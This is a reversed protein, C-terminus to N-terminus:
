GTSAEPSFLSPTGGGIFITHVRGAWHAAAGSRPRCRLADLYRREPAARRHAEHSNFDCYPCKRVCWPLHVYLSLPPLAALRLAGARMYASARRRRAARAASSRGAAIPHRGCAGLTGADPWCPERPWPRPPQALEEGRRLEAFPRAWNRSSCSPDFGFGNGGRPSARIEGAWRGVAILPEPDDARACRWWRASTARARRERDTAMQELLPARQQDDGKAYGFRTAYCASDVGPARRPSSACAPMTPWRRCAAAAAAHRAKALANEVFTRFPEEAESVGLPRSGCWSSVWRRLLPQLECTKGANNSALYSHMSRGGGNLAAKRMRVLERHGERGPGAAPEDRARSFAAGEATGQVEVFHGGGTMVVNMDTDCASDELYDLDLVPTGKYSASRSRPSSTRRDPNEDLSARPSCTPLACRGAGCLRRHDSATRTGGDAQIVDCDIRSRHARRADELDVVARLSRGILRQIEQTRGTQKGRAAERDSRTHTSRPLM